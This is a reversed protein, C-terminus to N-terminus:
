KEEVKSGKTKFSALREKIRNQKEMQELEQLKMENNSDFKSNKNILTQREIVRDFASTAKDVANNVGEEGKPTGPSFNEFRKSNKFEQFEENMESRKAKLASIYGELEKESEGCNAITQELIPIQAEIDLQKSVAAGALDERDEKIALEIKGTLEEHKNNLDILKKNSLHKQAIVKGLEAKIEDVADDIERIAENMIAEPNANEVLDVIAHANGSIIRGIRDILRNMM